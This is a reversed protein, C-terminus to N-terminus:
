VRYFVVNFVEALKVLDKVRCGDSFFGIHETESFSELLFHLRIFDFDVDFVSKETFQGLM